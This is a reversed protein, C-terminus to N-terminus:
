NAQIRIGESHSSFEPAYMSQITTIGNSFNGANNVRLDYEFIYVGKPLYDFFFNVSADKVSEYYGLGDQWKYSSLVTTPELGSARMDKMHVFEMGRDSRLEIRVRVLDGVNLKTNKTVESLEEGTPTNNKLFVKKKLKLPTEASTIKDLDEFYQWTLSGWASGESKKILQVKAMEPTIEAGSWSTKFYGTGAEIKANELKEPAIKKGGILIDVSESVSLWDSGQLLLAYVAETTAKTTKWQNTQKNKLLWLKLLEIKKSDKNIESFAEILLSQTEIPAQNWNWSATNEKWYMGMEENIISNEELALLIKKATSINNNRYLVLSILGKSYLSKNTWYKHAQNLYYEKIDTVSKSMKHEPFFSRMYLYHLQTASLHDKSLDTAHKKMREYESLFEADLYAIAKTIMEQTEQNDNGNFASANGRVNASTLKNLHGFGIIIHQTIFRNERGGNFWAWGGSAMQNQQLQRLSNQQDNKLKNLDFLLAIRKKQETESQADRLWPTEQILISKLEQNKELNSLLADSNTWQKFVEQIRPNSNAIHAGLSNAYYRSFIQESCDYPYEMLYPLAQLAYWAPNSTIELSLQHHKLTSSNVNKLKDLTFDKTQNGNVWMPLTETVLTRNSLVPLINQEGDSYNGAVAMVKYQVAQLGEPIKIIWSVETNGNGDVKFDNTDQKTSSTPTSLLLEQVIDKGTVADYLKLHAKGVLVKDTLNSIKSSFTIQDGERLFRPANPIIMLEKQTVSSFTSTASELSKTHALLQLKWQTLAEPTTFNFSVNGEKDTLLQPFFFATEQLNKRIQIDGFEPKNKDDEIPAPLNGVKNQSIGKGFGVVVSEDFSETETADEMVALPASSKMMMRDRIMIGYGFHLGFWNFSDYRQSSYNNNLNYDVYSRFSTVRFSKSPNMYFNSYYNGQQYPNFDWSHPKFADLSADYMSAMIEATLGNGKSGKVKFSWTEDTGPKIKDRFSVTEIQLDKNPYPVPISINGNQFSNFTSFSYTISFGGLDEKTVPLTISKINNNLKIKHTAVIKRDKEVFLSVTLDKAASGINLIVKDGVAYSNKDTKIQFLQNDALTKESNSYLTTYAIDKVEEGFRDKTYLEIRYKGSPWKKKLALDIKKSKETDFDAEWVLEGNEWQSSDYEDGFAEHPFLEKFKEETFGSYDPAAWPRARLVQDPGNLKYMKLTGKTPVFQGNLNHTTINLEQKKIDKNILDAIKVKATLAHYGVSVTTTTSQTEGNLDTVDATVEYNFIPMNEKSVSLDPLAKFNIVYKGQNDTTTSGQAIEQPTGRYIPLHRGYWIPFNIIRKVTYKVQANTINSGAYGMAKGTVKVSDNLQYTDTIPEFTTEFKPRKYEEVSITKHGNINFESSTVELYFEGTLGNSPLTFEGSFSGYDNTKFERTSVEQQNVDKLSVNVKAEPLIESSDDTRQLAIGKFYLTQGPRYISRDTFLFCPYTTAKQGSNYKNPVYFDNFYAVQGNHNVEVSISNKYSSDRPLTVMGMDDTTMTKTVFPKNYSPKYTFEVKAGEIPAGTNRDIVQYNNYDNTTSEVLALDTVQIPSYSFNNGKSGKPLALLVYYGNQLEPLIIETSHNQYDKENTLPAEWQKEIALEKIFALKKEQPYLQSLAKLQKISVKHASLELLSINKYNVLLRSPSNVSIHMEATLQLSTVLIQTKLDNCMEAAKSNPFKSIVSECIELAEKQKWRPEASTTPHYTNGNGHLALAIEYRYLAGNEDGKYAEASNQLVEIYQDEKNPFVANERIFKLRAIDVDIFAELSTDSSHFAVLQQYIQLAKAQLSLKEKSNFEQEVFQKADCLVEANDLQFKDAPQSISNESRSYFDLANYALLDFLTPRYKESDKQKELIENFQQVPLEQLLAPNNLSAEFHNGIEYFLTTLDWTRFDTSDIKAETKTRDYFRHRNQQFYQWYLNALYGELINKVPANSTAIEEKFDTIIKLQADEELILSYKSSYLLSKIVQSKNNEQKAKAAINAVAELASKTMTEKELKEVRQWLLDYTATSKQSQAMHVFLFITFLTIIKRM